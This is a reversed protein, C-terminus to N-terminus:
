PAVDKAIVRLIEASVHSGWRRAERGVFEEDLWKTPPNVATDIGFVIGYIVVVAIAVAPVAAGVASLASGGIAVPIFGEGGYDPLGHAIYLDSRSLTAVRSGDKREVVAVTNVRYPWDFDHWLPALVLFGPFCVLFNTGRTMARRIVHLEVRYDWDDTDVVAIEPALELGRGVHARLRQDTEVGNVLAIKVASPFTPIPERREPKDRVFDATHICGTLVFGLAIVLAPRSVVVDSRGRDSTTRSRASSAIAVHSAWEDAELSLFDDDLLVPYSVGPNQHVFEPCDRCGALVLTVLHVVVVTLRRM